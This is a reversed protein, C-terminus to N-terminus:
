RGDMRSGVEVWQASTTGHKAAIELRAISSYVKGTGKQKTCFPICYLHQSPYSSHYATFPISLNMDSGRNTVKMFVEDHQTLLGDLALQQENVARIQIDTLNSTLLVVDVNRHAADLGPPKTVNSATLTPQNVPIAAGGGTIGPFNVASGHLGSLPFNPYSQLFQSQLYSLLVDDTAILVLVNAAFEPLKCVVLM